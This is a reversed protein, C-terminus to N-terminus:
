WELVNAFRKPSNESYFQLFWQRFRAISKEEKVLTPNKLFKKNQWMM